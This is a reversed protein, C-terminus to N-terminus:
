AAQAFESSELARQAEMRPTTPGSGSLVGHENVKAHGSVSEIATTFSQVSYSSARSEARIGFETHAKFSSPSLSSKSSVSNGVLPPLPSSTTHYETELSTASSQNSTGTGDIPTPPVINLETRPSSGSQPSSAPMSESAIPAEPFYQSSDQSTGASSPAPDASPETPSSDVRSLLNTTSSTSDFDPPPELDQRSTSAAFAIADAGYPIGFRAFSDRSSILKLQEPTPGTRPYTFETRVATHTLPASISNISVLSPSTLHNSNITRISRQRSLTRFLSGSPSPHHSARSRSRPTERSHSDGSSVISTGSDARQHSIRAEGAPVSHSLHIPNMANLLSRFGSLRHSTDPSGPPSPSALTWSQENLNVVQPSDQPLRMSLRNGARVAEEYSPTEGRPDSSATVTRNLPDSEESTNLTDVSRRTRGNASGDDQLLPMDNPSNPIPPYRMAQNQLANEEGDEAVSPMVTAVPQSVDEMDTPGRIIVLEQEGPEKMYAPLSTTSIQSPTRRTRRPRRTRGPNSANNANNANTTNRNISGALQEATLERAQNTPGASRSTIRRRCRLFIHAFPTTFCSYIVAALLLLIVGLVPAWAVVSTSGSSQGRQVLLRGSRPQYESPAASASQFLSSTAIVLALLRSLHCAQRTTFPRTSPTLVANHYVEQHEHCSM